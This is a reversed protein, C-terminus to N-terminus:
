KKMEIENIKVNIDKEFSRKESRVKKIFKSARMAM